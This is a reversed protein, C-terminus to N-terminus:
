QFTKTRIKPFFFLECPSTTLQTILSNPLTTTIMRIVLKATHKETLDDSSRAEHPKGPLKNM